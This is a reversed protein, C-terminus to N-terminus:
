RSCISLDHSWNVDCCSLEANCEVITVEDNEDLHRQIIELETEFHPTNVAYTTYVLIRM